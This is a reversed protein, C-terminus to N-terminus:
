RFDEPALTRRLDHRIAPDPDTGRYRGNVYVSNSHHRVHHRPVYAYADSGRAHKHKTAALAPTATVATLALGAIALGTILKQM